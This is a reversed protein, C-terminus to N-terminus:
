AFSASEVRRRSLGNVPPRSLRELAEFKGHFHRVLWYRLWRWAPEIYRLFHRKGLCLGLYSYAGLVQLNRCLRLLTYSEIFRSRSIGLHGKMRTWYLGVLQQAVDSPLCVYPDLLLSALDYAPPGYRMGQFDILRLRGKSVMLNRSQFDRHIIWGSGATTGAAEAIAQFDCKLDEPSVNRDLYGNLFRERFYELERWYVFEPDYQVTDFCFDTSFGDRARTHLATLLQIVPHYLRLPDTPFRRVHDLFHHDGLDELLFYGNELDAAHIRPVPINCHFLHKGILFYSDNEDVAAGNRRPSALLVFSQSGKRLRFFRRQSGDGPLPSCRWGEATEDFAVFTDRFFRACEPPLADLYAPPTM